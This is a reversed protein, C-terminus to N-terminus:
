FLMEYRITDYRLDVCQVMVSFTYFRLLTLLRLLSDSSLKETVLQIQLRNM